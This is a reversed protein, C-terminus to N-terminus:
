LRWLYAVTFLTIWHFFHSHNNRDWWGTRSLTVRTVTLRTIWKGRAPWEFFHAALWHWGPRTADNDALTYGTTLWPQMKTKRRLLLVRTHRWLGAPLTLRGSSGALPHFKQKHFFTGNKVKTELLLRVLGNVLKISTDIFTIQTVCIQMELHLPTESSM